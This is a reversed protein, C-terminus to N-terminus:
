NEILHTQFVIFCDVVITTSFDKNQIIALTKYVGSM